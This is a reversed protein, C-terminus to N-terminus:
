GSENVPASQEAPLGVDAGQALDSAAKPCVFSEEQMFDKPLRGLASDPYARIRRCELGILADLAAASAAYPGAPLHEEVSRQLASTWRGLHQALFVKAADRAISAKAAWGRAAAYAQKILLLSYFELESAVHDPLDPDAQSPIFGFAAYFGSIDALEVPRGAIRRGDGYATEHLSVPANGFFCRTYDAAIEAEDSARWAAAARTVSRMVAPPFARKLATRNLRAFGRVMERVHGPVPYAFAQALLMYLAARVLIAEVRAERANRAAM